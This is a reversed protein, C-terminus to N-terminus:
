PNSGKRKYTLKNQELIAFIEDITDDNSFIGDIGENSINTFPPEYFKELEIAGNQVIHNKLTDLFRIQTSNLHPHNGVFAQFYKEVAEPELGVIRRLALDFYGITEPYLAYLTEKNFSADQTMILPIVSDLEEETVPLGSKIKKLAPSKEFLNEIIDNVRKRYAVMELNSFKPIYEEMQINEDDEKVDFVIAKQPVYTANNQQLKMLGRLQLRMEELSDVTIKDWFASTNVIQLFESKSRVQSLTKPLSNIQNLIDDKKSEFTGSNNLLEKQAEAILLDFKLSDVDSKINVWKMLPAIDNQLCKQTEESFSDIVGESLMLDIDRKKDRIELNQLSDITNIDKEILESIYEFADENFKDLAVSAIELRKRFLKEKLSMSKSPEVPKYELDFYEFNSWHDFIYFEKKDKGKGFLDVCLRTGRGIMQWFKAFSKVPKAFVLNVVEPVDIGTDLMDVSIAIQLDTNTGKGKFDDILQEARPDYNDIVRCLKGRYQPYSEEFVELMHMAHKHNRAFIITKGPLTGTADKIGNEMLNAFIKRTTDKNFVDVDMQNAEYDVSEADDTQDELEAKQEDTLENYKLGDRTFQTSHEFVKFPVLYGAEVAEDYSYNSTPNQLDCGFMSFTNRNVFEVPTATLGIQLSDFYDFIDKFINYISRHSEDAIILDFFGVDFSSFYELMSHYTALYIRRDRQKYTKRSVVALPADPLFDTFADKAQKRLEKRDCLFLIRKAWNSRTLADCLSVAVRTKGTGTAQVILTKRIGSSFAELVRKQAEIQYIRGAIDNNFAIKKIAVRNQKKFHLYQLSDKSYFGYVKRPAEGSEDDYFKLDYGNALFIAPRINYKKELADAYLEAQKRGIEVSKSTKKAEVVALPKGNDDWLVYDVYGKQSVNFQGDVEVEQGVEATSKGDFSVDWGAARLLKDILQKRTEEENLNLRSAYKRGSKALEEIESKTKVANELKLRQEEYKAVLELVEKEKGNLQETLAKIKSENSTEKSPESFSYRIAENEKYFVILLWTGITHAQKLLMMAENSSVIGGHAARNGSIRISHLNDIIVSQVAQSSKLQNIRDVFTSEESSRISLKNFLIDVYKEAFSRIKVACSQPDLYVYKEAYKGLTALEPLKNEFYKFNSKDM